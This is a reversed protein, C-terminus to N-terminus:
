KGIERVLLPHYAAATSAGGDVALDIPITALQKGLMM